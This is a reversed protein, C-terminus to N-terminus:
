DIGINNNLYWLCKFFTLQNSWGVFSFTTMLWKGGHRELGMFSQEDKSCLKLYKPHFGPPKYSDWQRGLLIWQWPGSFYSFCQWFLGDAILPVIQIQKLSSFVKETCLFCFCRSLEVIRRRQTWPRCIPLSPLRRPRCCLWPPLFTICKQKDKPCENPIIARM